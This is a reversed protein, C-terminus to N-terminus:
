LSKDMGASSSLSESGLFRRRRPWFGGEAVAEAFSV